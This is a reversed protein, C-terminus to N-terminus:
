AKPLHSNSGESPNLWTAGLVAPGQGLHEHQRQGSSGCSLGVNVTCSDRGMPKPCLLALPESSDNTKGTWM